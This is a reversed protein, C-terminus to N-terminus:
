QITSKEREALAEEVASQKRMGQEAKKVGFHKDLNELTAPLHNSIQEALRKFVDTSIGKADRDLVNLKRLETQLKSTEETCTRVLSTIFPNIVKIVLDDVAEQPRQLTMLEALALRYESMLKQYSQIMMASDSGGDIASKTQTCQNELDDVIKKLREFHSRPQVIFKEIYFKVDDYDLGLVTSIHETTKGAKFATEIRFLTETPLHKLPNDVPTM